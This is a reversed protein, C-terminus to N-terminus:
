GLGICLRADAVGEACCGCLSIGDAFTSHLRIVGPHGQGARNGSKVSRESPALSQRRKRPTQARERNRDHEQSARDGISGSSIPSPLSEDDNAIPRPPTVDEDEAREPMLPLDASRSPRRADRADRSDRLTPSLPGTTSTSSTDSTVTVVSLRDKGGVDKRKPPVASSSSSTGKRHARVTPSPARPLSLRILADREISAYKAKKEQLLHAQNM